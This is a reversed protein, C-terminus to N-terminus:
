VFKSYVVEFEIRRIQLIYSSAEFKIKYEHHVVVGMELFTMKIKKGGFNFVNNAGSPSMTSM